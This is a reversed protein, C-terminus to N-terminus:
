GSTFFVQYGSSLLGFPGWLLDPRPPSSFVEWGRGPSSGGIMWGTAWRQVVSSDRSRYNCICGWITKNQIKVIQLGPGTPQKPPGHQKRLHLCCRGGFRRYVVVASCPTAAWFVCWRSLRMDRISRRRQILYQLKTGSLHIHYHSWSDPFPTYATLGAM